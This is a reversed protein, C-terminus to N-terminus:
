ATFLRNVFSINAYSAEESTQPVRPSGRLGRMSRAENSARQGILRSRKDKGRQKRATDFITNQVDMLAHSLPYIFENNIYNSGYQEPDYERDIKDQPIGAQSLQHRHMQEMMEKQKKPPVGFMDEIANVANWYWDADGKLITWALDFPSAM